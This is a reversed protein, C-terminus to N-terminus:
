EVGESEEQIVEVVEVQALELGFAGDAEWKNARWVEAFEELTGCTCLGADREAIFMTEMVADDDADDWNYLHWSSRDYDWQSFYLIHGDIPYGTNKVMGAIIKPKCIEKKMRELTRNLKEDMLQATEKEIDFHIKMQELMIQVDAAEEAINLVAEDESIDTSDGDTVRLYKNLAQILEACEEMTQRAQAEIGYHEVIKKAKNKM